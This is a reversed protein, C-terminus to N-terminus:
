TLKFHLFAKIPLLGVKLNICDPQQIYRELLLALQNFILCNNAFGSLVMESCVAVSCM